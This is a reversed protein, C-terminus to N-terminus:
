RAAVPSVPGRVATWRVTKEGILVEGRIRDGEVTGRYERVSGKALRVAFRVRNADVKGGSLPVKKRGSLIEGELYQFRQKLRLVFQEGPGGALTVRWRGHVNAPVIWLFIMSQWNGQIDYKEKLDMTVTRDPMWEGFEFDHSVVRAGPRLERLIKSRLDHMMNPLLYLTVVTAEGLDTQLVDQQRFTVRGNVGLKQADANSMDVLEGNIDVGLGRAGYTRAATLVIRGDGSGLDIVFDERGVRAVKLMEDVVIQPTPVYPGGTEGEASAPLPVALLALILLGPKLVVPM